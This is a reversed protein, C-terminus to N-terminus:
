LSNYDHMKYWVYNNYNNYWMRWNEDNNTSPGSLRKQKPILLPLVEQTYKVNIQSSLNYRLVSFIRLAIRNRPDNAYFQKKYDSYFVNQFIYRDDTAYVESPLRKALLLTRLSSIFVKQGLGINEIRDFLHAMHASKLSCLWKRGRQQLMRSTVIPGPFLLIQQIMMNERAENFAFIQQFPFCSWIFENQHCLFYVNWFFSQHLYASSLFLSM